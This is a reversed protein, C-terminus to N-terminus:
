RDHVLLKWMPVFDIEVGDSMTYRIAPKPLFGASRYLPVGPLTAMLEVQTFGVSEAHEECTRMLLMGLGQRAFHPHVFFARIRAPDTAPNIYVDHPHEEVIQDGGFLKKRKSWGGCAAIVCSGSLDADVTEVVYYTKDEILETDVGFVTCIASEIQKSSYYGDSLIRVSSAILPTLIPIDEYEALRIRFTPPSKM